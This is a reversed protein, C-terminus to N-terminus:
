MDRTVEHPCKEHQINLKIEFQKELMELEKKPISVIFKGLTATTIDFMRMLHPRNPDTLALLGLQQNHFKIMSLLTTAHFIVEELSFLNLMSQRTEADFYECAKCKM